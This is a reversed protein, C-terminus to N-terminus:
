TVLALSLKLKLRILEKFVSLSLPIIQSWVIFSFPILDDNFYGSIKLLILYKSWSCFLVNTNM